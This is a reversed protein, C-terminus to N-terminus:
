NTGIHKNLFSLTKRYFEARNKEDFFGHGEGDKVLWEYPLGREDLAEKLLYAQEVPVRKDEEGHVILIPTKLNDIYSLPSEKILLTEDRGYMEKIDNKLSGVNAYDASSEQKVADYVGAAAISCKFLKNDILPSMLASYGGFSWGMICVKSDHITNQSLAWRTGDIIDNQILTSRKKYAAREYNAGYGGSGRYNVQLVAYGNNALMQVTDEYYWDDQVGYPGGHVYVVLPRKSKSNPTTLYGYITTGDRSEFSIANKSVLDNPDLWNKLSLQYAMEHTELNFMYYDGPNKDSRVLVLAEKKNKTVSLISIDSEGFAARLGKYLKTYKNKPEFFFHSVKDKLTKVGIINRTEPDRIIDDYDFKSDRYVEETHKTSMNHRYIAKTNNNYGTLYIEQNNSSASLPSYDHVNISGTSELWKKDKYIFANTEGRWNTGKALIPTGDTEFIANMRLYPLQTKLKYRGNIGNVRYLQSGSEQGSSWSRALVLFHDEEDPLLSVISGSSKLPKAGKINTANRESGVKYGFIPKIFNKDIHVSMVEGYSRRQRTIPNDESYQFIIHKDNLWYFNDIHNDKGMKFVNFLRIKQKEDRTLVALVTQDKLTSLAGFHKGDPSLKLM